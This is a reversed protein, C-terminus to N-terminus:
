GLVAHKCGLTHLIELWSQRTADDASKLAPLLNLLGYREYKFNGVNHYPMIDIGDLNPYRMSLNAIGALHDPTDNVGQVLPCRLRIKAERHYLFDLNSMILDNSVGTLRRHSVPYTVKYDYLFLDVYPLVQGYARQSSWGCTDLCTHIREAKAAKLLELTFEEQLMPEGGTLTLGGGSQEYFSRDRLVEAMVSEVTREVGAV